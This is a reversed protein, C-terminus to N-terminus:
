CIKIIDRFNYNADSHYIKSNDVLKSGTLVDPDATVQNFANKINQQTGPLFRGTDAVNRAAAHAQDPTAGGLTSQVYTAAYQGFWTTDPKWVRNINVATFEM